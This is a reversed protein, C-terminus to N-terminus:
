NFYHNTISKIKKKTKPLLSTIKQLNHNFGQLSQKHLLIMKFYRYPYEVYSNIKKWRRDSVEVLFNPDFTIKGLSLQSIHIALDADEHVLKDDKCTFSRVKQWANKRIAMNPGYLCDCGMIIRFSNFYAIGPFKLLADM